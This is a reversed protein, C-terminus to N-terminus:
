PASGQLRELRRPDLRISLNKEHTPLVTGPKGGRARRLHKVQTYYLEANGSSRAKSYFVALSGADLLTELPVTKGAPCRVFVYGGPCDRTHLWYDNGRVHRRLLEDNEAATRGVYIRFAGSSFRLGPIPKERPKERPADKGRLEEELVRPDDEDALAKRRKELGALAGALRALEEEVIALGSKAKKYKQYFIEANEVPTKAPDLPLAIEAEGERAMCWLDGKKLGAINQMILDGSKRFHEPSGYGARRNELGAITARIKAEQVAFRNELRARLKERQEKEERRFYEEEIFGSFSEGAPYPRIEFSREPAAREASDEPRYVGGTEEGRKPRRYYADLIAGDGTVAIINSAAGWLRVWLLTDEGARRITLAFLRDGPIQKVETIRGGRVRSRLFEVFRRTTPSARLRRGLSHIRSTGAGLNIYFRWAGGHKGTRGSAQPKQFLELVLSRFDPQRLDQIHSGVLPIEELIKAIEKWNLSM